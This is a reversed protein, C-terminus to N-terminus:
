PEALPWALRAKLASSASLVPVAANRTAESLAARAEQLAKQVEVVEAEAAATRALAAEAARKADAAAKESSAARAEAAGADVAQQRLRRALASLAEDPAAANEGGPDVVPDGEPQLAARVLELEARTESLTQADAVTAAATDDREARLADCELQLAELAGLLRGVETDRSKAEANAAHMRDEAVKTRRDADAAAKVEALHLRDDSVYRAKREEALELRAAELEGAQQRAQAEREDLTDEVQRVKFRLVELEREREALQDRLLEQEHVASERAAQLKAHAGELARGRRHHELQAPAGELEAVRAELEAKAVGAAALQREAEERKELAHALRQQTSAVAADLATSRPAKSSASSSSGSRRGLFM